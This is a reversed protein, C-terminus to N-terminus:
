KNILGSFFKLVKHWLRKVFGAEEVSKLAILPTESILEGKVSVLVKGVTEGELIPAVVNRPLDLVVSMEEQKGRQITVALNEVVGLKVENEKGGWIRQQSVVQSANYLPVTEYFRYVYNLLQQTEQARTEENASGMVVTILRMNDRVASAVLCYGAESTHGTKIGDVTDDRWLLRNRNPQRIDNFEFYKEAYLPYYQYSNSILARSLLALDFASSYQDDAPWGTSNQFNTNHMGLEQAKRNMLSVFADESGAIHEALAVSADNGSAIIVGKLIDMLRVQRGEQIFMRSGGMRWAKESVTVMEDESLNGRILELEALYSTMIKVLSAPPYRDHENKAILVQGSAADMVLYSRAPIQPPAPIMAAHAHTALVVISLLLFIIHSTFRSLM